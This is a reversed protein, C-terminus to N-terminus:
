YYQHNKEQIQQKVLNMFELKTMQKIKDSGHKRVAFTGEKIERDGIVLIYPIKRLEAERIKKGLKENKEFVHVQHGHEGLFAAAAMGAAGGGIILIKAM